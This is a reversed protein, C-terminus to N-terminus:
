RTETKKARTTKPRTDARKAPTQAEHGIRKLEADVAKLGDNNSRREYGRREDLLATIYAAKQADDM